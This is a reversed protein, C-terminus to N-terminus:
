LILHRFTLPELDADEPQWPQRILSEGKSASFKEADSREVVIGHQVFLATAAARASKVEGITVTVHAAGGQTGKVEVRLENGDYGNLGRTSSVPRAM